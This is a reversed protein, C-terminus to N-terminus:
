DSTEGGTSASTADATSDRYRLDRGAHPTGSKTPLDVDPGRDPAVQYTRVTEILERIAAADATPTIQDYDGGYSVIGMDELKPLHCQYLSVYVRKREDSTVLDIPKDNEAAAVADALNTLRVPEGTEDHHELVIRTVERRRENKLLRGVEDISLETMPQEPVDTFGLLSRVRELFTM